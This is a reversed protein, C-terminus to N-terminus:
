FPSTLCIVHCCSGEFAQGNSLESKYIFFHDNSTAMNQKM